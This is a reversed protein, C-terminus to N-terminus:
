DGITFDKRAFALTDHGELRVLVKMAYKGPTLAFSQTIDVNGEALGSRALNVDVDIGKRAFAVATQGAFVYMLAEGTVKADEGAIALLERGPLAVNLTAQRPAAIVATTMSIGNQPVDNIIIDALRLGDRTSPKGAISTYVERYSVTSWRPAGDVHVTIANQKRGTNPAHFGLVYVVQQSDTLRQMAATLDNRHEVVQGGTDAIIFHLSDNPPEDYPRLGAIDVADLFVGAAAFKKQMRLQSLPLRSDFMPTQTMPRFAALQPAPGVGFINTTARPGELLLSNDFGDSLLVVHKYGEMPAMRQALEGLADLQDVTRSRALDVILEVAVSDGTRRLEAIAGADDNILAAREAQSVTLRLPDAPSAPSFSDVALRLAAKDHTFPVIFDIGNYRHLLAVAFYDSPQASEVYREAARKARLVSFPSSNVLDFLLVYLRRQRPDRTQDPSLAAFDVVDFYDIQQAKGNVRLTFDNRTLGRVSAGATTVYVPVQVVEVTTTERQQAFGSTAAILVLVSPLLVRSLRM